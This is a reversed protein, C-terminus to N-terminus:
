FLQFPQEGVTYIQERETENSVLELQLQDIDDGYMEKVTKRFTDMSNQHHELFWIIHNKLYEHRIRKNRLDFPVREMRPDISDFGTFPQILREEAM